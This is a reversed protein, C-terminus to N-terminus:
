NRVAGPKQKAPVTKPDSATAGPPLEDARPAGQQQIKWKQTIARADLDTKALELLETLLAAYQGELAGSRKIQQDRKEIAQETEVQTAKVNTLRQAAYNLQSQFYPREMLKVKLQGGLVILAALNLLGMCLALMGAESKEFLGAKVREGGSEDM